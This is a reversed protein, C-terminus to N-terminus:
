SIIDRVHSLREVGQIEVDRILHCTLYGSDERCEDVFDDSRVDEHYM